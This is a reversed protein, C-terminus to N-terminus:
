RALVALSDQIARWAGLPTGTVKSRGQRPHYSVPVQRIRLGADAARVLTEVPYGSRRDTVGLRLLTDRRAARVPGCDQIPFGTRRRIRWALAVNAVRLAWPFARALARRRAVTLDCEGARIPGLVTPLEAPDVSGDCDMFVVYQAEAAALGAHCASGYGRQACTVVRAGLRAALDRSGDTSGNDVVLARFGAPLRSLVWPLAAAENLCPLIVEVQNM